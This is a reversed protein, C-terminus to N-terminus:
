LVSESLHDVGVIVGSVPSRVVLPTSGNRQKGSNPWATQERNNTRRGTTVSEDLEEIGVNNMSETESNDASSFYTPAGSTPSSVSNYYSGSQLPWRPDDAATDSTIVAADIDEEEDEEEDEDDVPSLQHEAVVLDPCDTGRDGLPEEVARTLSPLVSNPDVAHLQSRGSSTGFMLFALASIM